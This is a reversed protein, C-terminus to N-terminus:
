SSSLWFFLMNILSSFIKGRKNKEIKKKQKRLIIKSTYHISFSNQAGNVGSCSTTVFNIKSDGYNIKRSQDLSYAAEVGGVFDSKWIFM